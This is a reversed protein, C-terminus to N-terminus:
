KLNGQNDFKGFGGGGPTEVRLIEGKKFLANFKGPLETVKDGNIRINKGQKGPEGEELGYPAFKRRESLITVEADSLLKVERVVGNGGNYHGLGGSNKRISYETVFFPYSYELAEIPTNLTNTM